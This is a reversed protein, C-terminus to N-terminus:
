EEVKDELESVANEADESKPPVEVEDKPGFVPKFIYYMGVFVIIPIIIESAILLIKFSEESPKELLIM